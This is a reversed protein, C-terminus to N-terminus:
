YSKSIKTQYDKLIQINRIYYNGNTFDILKMKKLNQFIRVATVRNIGLINSVYQQTINFNLKIKGEEEIGFNNALTILLNCIRWEVTYNQLEDVQNMLSILKKTLSQLIFLTAGLDTELSDMLDSYAISILCSDEATKFYYIVPIKFLFCTEWLISGNEFIGVIRENGKPSYEYALVRGKKVYYLENPLDEPSAILTNKPFHLERGKDILAKSINDTKSIFSFENRGLKDM